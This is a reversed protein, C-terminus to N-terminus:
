SVPIVVSSSIKNKKKKENKESKKKPKEPEPSPSAKKKKKDRKKERDASRSFCISSPHYVLRRAKHQFACYYFEGPATDLIKRAIEDRGRAHHDRDRGPDVIAGPDTATTDNKRKLKRRMGEQLDLRPHPHGHHRSREVKRKRIM